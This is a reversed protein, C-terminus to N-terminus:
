LLSVVTITMIGFVPMNFTLSGILAWSYSTQENCLFFVYKGRETIIREPIVIYTPYISVNSKMFAVSIIVHKFYHAKLLWQKAHLENTQTWM